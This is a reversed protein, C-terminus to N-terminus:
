NVSCTMLARTVGIFSLVNEQEFPKNLLVIIGKVLASTGARCVYYSFVSTLAFFHVEEMLLYAHQKRGSQQTLGQTRGGSLMM